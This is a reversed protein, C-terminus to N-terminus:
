PELSELKRYAKIFIAGLNKNPPIYDSFLEQQYKGQRAFHKELDSWMKVWDLDKGALLQDNIATSIPVNVSLAGVQKSSIIHADPAADLVAGLNHYGGCSGLVVVKASPTLNAITSNLFYSHGRHVVVTPEINNKIFYEKLKRQAVEDEPETLPKNAYIIVKNPGKSTFKIWYENQETTWQNNRFLPVFNQYSMKGDDDGYFFVQQIVEGKSNRLSQNPVSTIPPIFSNLNENLQGTNESHNFITSLLGYVIVGKKSEDNNLAYTREYNAKVEQKLFNLLEKNKLGGFADAVDVADGLDHAPGKELGAVFQQMIDTQASKSMSNLFTELTGYGSSMRIFTRFHSNHLEALFENGPTPKMKEMMRAFMWTFSSTYIEDQGGLIMFYLEEASHKMLSAFRVNAPREHLENVVRVFGLGRYLIENDLASNEINAPDKKLQVLANFYAVEDNSLADVEAITRKGTHIENLFPLARNPNRSQSSIKVITQVFPDKNRRVAQSLVSTSNAYILVTTPDVHAAKTIIKDAFPENHFEELRKIMEKPNKLGYQEFLYAKDEPFPNLLASNNISYININNQVFSSTTKHEIALLMEKFNRTMNIYYGTETTEFPRVYFGQVLKELARYYGIKQQHTAEPLNEILINIHPLETFLVQNLIATKEEDQLVIQGNELGDLLDIRRVARIVNEHFIQRNIPIPQLLTDSTEWLPAESVKKQIERKRFQAHGNESSFCFILTMGIFSLFYYKM